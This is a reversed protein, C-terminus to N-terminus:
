KATPAQLNILGVAYDRSVEDYIGLAVRLSPTLSEVSITYTFHGTKAKDLDAAPISFPQTDHHTDSVGGITSGWALYVSFAGNYVDGQGRLPTLAAIPVQVTLPFLYTKNKTRTPAASKAAFRFASRPANGFLAGIVRDEMRTIETKPVFQRRSRVSLNPDKVRVEIKRAAAKAPTARYALSYYSDFDDGIQPLLKTVETSGWASVGGTEKAVFDLMPTENNLIRYDFVGTAATPADRQDAAPMSTSGLGEAYIPYITVGNANATEVLTRMLPKADFESQVEAPLQDAGALYFAEAGAYESLRHTALLLVKRGDVGAMSRMLAKLTEVKRKEDAMAVQAKMRASQERSFSLGSEEITTGGPGFTESIAGLEQRLDDMQDRNITVTRRALADLASDVKSLDDTFAQRIGVVGQNWSVVMVRDGPRVSDHLLKKMAAFMPDSRFAPLQFREVFVIISRKQQSPPQQPAAAPVQATVVGSQQQPPASSYEAFNTIPQRVGNEFIEFDDRSLGQARKGQKDVVVADVNVISVEVSESAHPVVPTQPAAVSSIAVLLLLLCSSSRM